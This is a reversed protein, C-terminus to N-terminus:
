YVSFAPTAVLTGTVFCPPGSPNDIAETPLTVVGDFYSLDELTGHCSAFPTEIGLTLDVRWASSGPAIAWTGIPQILFGCYLYDPPAVARSTVQAAGVSNISVAIEVVCDVSLTGDEIYLYGSLTSTSNTPWFTQAQAPPAAALALVGAAALALTKFM